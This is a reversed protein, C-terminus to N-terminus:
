AEETEILFRSLFERDASDSILIEGDLSMIQEAVVAAFVFQSLTSKLNLNDGEETTFHVEGKCQYVTQLFSPINADPKLKM